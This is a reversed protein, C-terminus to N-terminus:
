LALIFFLDATTCDEGFDAQLFTEAGDDLKRLTVTPTCGADSNMKSDMYYYAGNTHYYFVRAHGLSDKLTGIVGVQTFRGDIERLHGILRDADASTPCATWEAFGAFGIEKLLHGFFEQCEDVSLPQTDPDKAFYQMAELEIDRAPPLQGMNVLLTRFACPFCSAQYEQRKFRVGNAIPKWPRPVQNDDYSNDM